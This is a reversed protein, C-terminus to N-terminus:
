TLRRVRAVDAVVDRRDGGRVGVPGDGAAAAGHPGRRCPDDLRQSTPQPARTGIRLCRPRRRRLRAGASPMGRIDISGHTARRCPLFALLWTTPNQLTSKDCVAVKGRAFDYRRLGESNKTAHPLTLFCMPDGLGCQFTARSQANQFQWAHEIGDKRGHLEPAIAM